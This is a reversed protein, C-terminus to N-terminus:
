NPLPLWSTSDHWGVQYVWIQALLVVPWAWRVVREILGGSDLRLGAYAWWPAMPIGPPREGFIFDGVLHSSWGLLLAWVAWAAEPPVFALTALALAAPLGWWHTLGRHGGPSWRLWSQDADPSTWGAASATAIVASAATQWAPAGIMTSVALSASAGFLRHTSGDM